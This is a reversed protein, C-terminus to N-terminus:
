SVTAGEKAKFTIKGTETPNTTLTDVGGIVKELQKKDIKQITAKAEKKILKKFLNKM